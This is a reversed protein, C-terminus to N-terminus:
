LTTIVEELDLQHNYREQVCTERETDLNDANVLWTNEPYAYDENFWFPKMTGYEKSDLEEYMAELKDLDAPLLYAFEYSLSKRVNHYRYRRVGSVNEQVTHLFKRAISPGINYSRSLEMYRGIFLESIEIYGDPNSADTISIRWYRFISPTTLYNIINPQTWGISESFEPAGGIGSDFTDASDGDITITATMSLNHDQIIAVSVEQASGLDITIRNPSELSASRYRSDRNLDLMKGANYLNIGKFYWKDALVFDGTGASTFAIKVGESLTTPSASTVVGTANWGGSGDTWKYTSSGVAGTGVADIEVVYEKDIQGTFDGSIVIVADGTGMKLASTVLGEKLSSVTMMTESSIYNDYIFRPTISM